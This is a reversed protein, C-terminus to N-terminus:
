GNGHFQCNFSTTVLLEAQCFLREVLRSEFGADRSKGLFSASTIFLKRPPRIMGLSEVGGGIGGGGLLVVGGGALLVVVVGGLLVVGGGVLLVVVVVDDDLPAVVLLGVGGVFGGSASSGSEEVGISM